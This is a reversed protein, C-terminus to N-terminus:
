KTQNEMIKEMYLYYDELNPEVLYKSEKEGSEDIFRIKIGGDVSTLGGVLYKSNYKEM